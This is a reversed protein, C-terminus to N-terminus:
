CSAVCFMFFLAAKVCHASSIVNQDSTTFFPFYLFFPPPPPLSFTSSQKPFFLPQLSRRTFGLCSMLTALSIWIAFGGYGASFAAKKIKGERWTRVFSRQHRAILRLARLLCCIMQFDASLSPPHLTSGSLFWNDPRFREQCCLWCNIGSALGSRITNVKKWLSRCFESGM